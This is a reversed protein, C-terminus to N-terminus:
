QVNEDTALSSHVHTTSDDVDPTWSPIRRGQWWLGPRGVGGQEVSYEWRAEIEGHLVGSTLAHNFVVSGIHSDQAEDNETTKGDLVPIHLLCFPLPSSQARLITQKTFPSSSLFLGVIPYSKLTTTEPEWSSLPHQSPDVVYRHLVGEMERLYAPGIKKKEAKCQALIRMRRYQLGDETNPLKESTPLWWWGQLDIGGDSAGGVRRLSMSLNDQLLRMCKTEFAVGRHVTSLQSATTISRAFRRLRAPNLM